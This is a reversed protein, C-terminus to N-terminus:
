WNYYHRKVTIVKVQDLLGSNLLSARLKKSTIAIKHFLECGMLYSFTFLMTHFPLSVVEVRNEELSQYPMINNQQGTHSSLSGGEVKSEELSQDPM